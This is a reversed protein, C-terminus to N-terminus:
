NINLYKHKIKYSSERVKKMPLINFVLRRYASFGVFFLIPAVPKKPLFISQNFDFKLYIFLLYIHM